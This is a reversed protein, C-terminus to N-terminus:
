SIHSVVLSLEEEIAIVILVILPPEIRFQLGQLFDIEKSVSNLLKFSHLPSFRIFSKPIIYLVSEVVYRKLILFM